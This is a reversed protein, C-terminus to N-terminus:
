LEREKLVNKEMNEQLLIDNKLNQKARSILTEIKPISWGTIEAIKKYSFELYVKLILAIRQNEKLKKLASILVKEKQINEIEQHQTAEHRFYRDELNQSFFSSFLVTRKKKKIYNITLNKAITFIFSKFNGQIKYRSSTEFVKLFVEQAINQSEDYDFIMKHIFNVIKKKYRDIIIEYNQTKGERVSLIVEDDSLMEKSNICLERRM